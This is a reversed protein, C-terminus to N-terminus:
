GSGCFCPDNGGVKKGGIKPRDKWLNPLGLEPPHAGAVISMGRIVMAIGAEIPRSCSYTSDLSKILEHAIQRMTAPVQDEGAIEPRNGLVTVWGLSNKTLLALRNKIESWSRLGQPM